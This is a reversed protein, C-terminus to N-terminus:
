RKLTPCHVVTAGRAKGAAGEGLSADAAIRQLLDLEARACAGAYSAKLVPTGLLKLNGSDELWAPPIAAIWKAVPGAFADKREAPVGLLSALREGMARVADDRDAAPLPIAFQVWILGSSFLDFGCYGRIAGPRLADRQAPALVAFAAEFFRDRADTEDLVRQLAWRKGDYGALRVRDLDAHEAAVRGLRGAQDDSLPNGAAELTAEISNAAFVPHAFRSNIGEGPIREGIKLAAQVLPGNHQQIKGLFGPDPARGGETEKPLDRLLPILASMSAGVVKWDVEGLVEEYGPFSFRPGPSGASNVRVGTSASAAPAKEDEPIDRVKPAVGEVVPLDLRLEGPELVIERLPFCVAETSYQVRYRGPDVRVRRRVGGAPGTEVDTARGPPELPEMSVKGGPEGIWSVTAKQDILSLRGEKGEAVTVRAALSFSGRAARTNLIM